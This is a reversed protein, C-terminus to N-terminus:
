ALLGDATVAAFEPFSPAIHRAVTNNLSHRGVYDGIYESEVRVIFSPEGRYGRNM